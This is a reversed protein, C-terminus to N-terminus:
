PKRAATEAALGVAEWVDPHPDIEEGEFRIKTVIVEAPYGPSTQTPNEAPTVEVDCDFTLPIGHFDIGILM